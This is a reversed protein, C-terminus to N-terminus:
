TTQECRLCVARGPRCRVHLRRAAPLPGRRHSGELRAHGRRACRRSARVTPRHQVVRRRSLWPVVKAENRQRLRPEERGAAIPGLGAEPDDERREEARAPGSPDARRIRVAKQLVEWAWGAALFRASEPRKSARGIHSHAPQRRARQPIGQLQHADGRSLSDGTYLTERARRRARKWRIGERRHPGRAYQGGLSAIAGDGPTRDWGFL